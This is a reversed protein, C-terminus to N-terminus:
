EAFYLFGGQRDGNGRLVLSVAVSEPPVEALVGLIVNGFGGPVGLLLLCPDDPNEGRRRPGLGTKGPLPLMEMEPRVWVANPLLPAPELPAVNASDLALDGSRRLSGAILERDRSRAALVPTIGPRLPALAPVRISRRIHGAHLPASNTRYVRFSFGGQGMRIWIGPIGFRGIEGDASGGDKRSACKHFGQPLTRSRLLRFVTEAEVRNRFEGAPNVLGARLAISLAAAAQAAEVHTQDGVLFVLFESDAGRGGNGFGARKSEHRTAIRGSDTCALTSHRLAELLLFVGNESKSHRTSDAGHGGARVGGGVTTAATDVRGLVVDLAVAGPAKFGRAAAEVIGVSPLDQSAMAEGGFGEASDACGFPNIGDGRLNVMDLRNFLAPVRPM